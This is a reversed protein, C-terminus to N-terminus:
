LYFLLGSILNRSSHNLEKDNKRKPTVMQLFIKDPVIRKMSVREKEKGERRGSTHRQLRIIM